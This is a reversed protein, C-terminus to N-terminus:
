AKRQVAAHHHKLAHYIFATTVTRSRFWQVSLSRASPTVYFPEGEWCGDHRQQKYLRTVWAAEFPLSRTRLSALILFAADQPSLDARGAEARLAERLVAGVEDLAGRLAVDATHRTLLAVLETASWLSYLPTYHGCAGLGLETWRRCWDRACAEVLDRHQRWDLAALSAMLNTEVTACQAGYLVAVDSSAKTSDGDRLWVPIHGSPWQAERLWRLPARFADLQRGPDRAHPILRIALALTDADPALLHAQDWSRFDQSQLTTLLDDVQASVDHGHAALLDVVVCPAFVRGVVQPMNAHSHQQIDWAERLSPDALLYAEAKLLVNDLVEPAPVFFPHLRVPLAAGENTRLGFIVRVGHLLADVEDCHAQLNPLELDMAIHRAHAIRAHHEQLMQDLTGTLLLAALAVEVSAEGTDALGMAGLARRIPPSAHGRKLDRRFGALHDVCQLVTSVSDCYSVLLPVSAARGAWLATAVAPLAAIRWHGTAPPRGESGAETGVEEVSQRRCDWFPSGEPVAQQWFLGAQRALEDQLSRDSADVFSHQDLRAQRLHAALFDCTAAVFLQREFAWREESAGIGWDDLLWAQLDLLPFDQSRGLMHQWQGDGAHQLGVNHCLLLARKLQASTLGDLLRQVGSAHRARHLLRDPAHVSPSM